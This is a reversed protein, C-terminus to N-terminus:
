QSELLLNLSKRLHNMEPLMPAAAPAGVRFRCGSPPSPSGGGGPVFRVTGDDASAPITKFFALSFTSVRCSLAVFVDSAAPAGGIGSRFRGGAIVVSRGKFFFAAVNSPGAEGCVGGVAINLGRDPNPLARAADQPLWPSDGHFRADKQM